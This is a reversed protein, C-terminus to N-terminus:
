CRSSTRWYFRISIPHPSFVSNSFEQRGLLRFYQKHATARCIHAFEKRPEVM